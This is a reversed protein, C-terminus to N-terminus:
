VLERDYKNLYEEIDNLSAEWLSKNYKSQLWRSLLTKDINCKEAVFIQKVGFKELHQKLKERLKNERENM